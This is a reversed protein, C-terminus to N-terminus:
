RVIRWGKFDVFCKPCMHYAVELDNETIVLKKCIKCEILTRSECSQFDGLNNFTWEGHNFPRKYGHVFIAMPLVKRVTAIQGSSLKVRMGVKPYRM